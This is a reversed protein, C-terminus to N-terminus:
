PPIKAKWAHRNYLFGFNRWMDLKVLGGGIGILQAGGLFAAKTVVFTATQLVSTKSRLGLKAAFAGAADVVGSADVRLISSMAQETTSGEGNGSLSEVLKSLDTPSPSSGAM